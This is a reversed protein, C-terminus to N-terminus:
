RVVERVWEKIESKVRRWDLRWLMRPTREKDADEFYVLGHVISSLDDLGFKEKCLEFLEPLPKYHKCIAYIDMFDKKSGRQAIAVLKMCAIDELSAIWCGFVDCDAFPSVLPYSYEFLSIRVGEVMCHLTGSSFGMVKLEIGGEELEKALRLPDEMKKLTFWDLDVSRRHGLYLAVATGGALYFDKAKAVPGFKGLVSVQRDTLVETHWSVKQM